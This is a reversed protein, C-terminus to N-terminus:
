EYPSDIKFKTIKPSKFVVHKYEGPQSTDVDNSEGEEFFCTKSAGAVHTSFEVEDVLEIFQLNAVYPINTDKLTGLFSLSIGVM